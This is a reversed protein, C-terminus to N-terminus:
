PFSAPMIGKSEAELGSPFLEIWHEAGSNNASELGQM